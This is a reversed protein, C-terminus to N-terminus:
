FQRLSFLLVVSFGREVHFNSYLRQPIKLSIYGYNLLSNKRSLNGFNLKNKKRDPIYAEEFNAKVKLAMDLGLAYSASDIETNLSKVEKLQNGCSFMSAIVTITLVSKIIKM